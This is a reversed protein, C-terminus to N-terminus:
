HTAASRHGDCIRIPKVNTGDHHHGPCVAQYLVNGFTGTCFTFLPVMSDMGLFSVNGGPFSCFIGIRKFRQTVGLTHAEGGHWATYVGDFFEVCWSDAGRGLWCDEERGKRPISPYTLGVEWYTKGGVDVEWYHRGQTFGERSIVNLTTDFRAPSEPLEQWTDTYSACGGDPSIVLKPHATDPDLTVESAYSKFLKKTVPIQARIFLLLNNALSLLQDAKFEDLQVQEPDSVKLVETIRGEIEANQDYPEPKGRELQLSLESLEQALDQSLLYCSEFHEELFSVAAEAEMDLQTLSMQLDEELVRQMEEYKRKMREKLVGTKRSIDAQKATLKDMRYAVTDRQKKLHGQHKVLMERNQSIAALEEVEEQEDTTKPAADPSPVATEKLLPPGSRGKKIEVYDDQTFHDSCMKLKRLTEIPTNVDMRAALLWLQTRQQDEVPFRHFSQPAWKKAANPCGQFACRFVM